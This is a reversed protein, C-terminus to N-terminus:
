RDGEAKKIEALALERSRSDGIIWTEIIHRAVVLVARLRECEAERNSARESELATQAEAELRYLNRIQAEKRDLARALADYRRVLDDLADAGENLLDAHQKATWKKGAPNQAEDRLWFAAHIAVLRWRERGAQPALTAPDAAQPMAPRLVQIVPGCGDGTSDHHYGEQDLAWTGVMMGCEPCRLQQQPKDGLTAPDAAADGERDHRDGPPIPHDAM